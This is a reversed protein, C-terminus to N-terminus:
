FMSEGPALYREAIAQDIEVGFGPADTLPVHGTDDFLPVGERRVVQGPVHQVGLEFASRGLAVALERADDMVVRDLAQARGRAEGNPIPFERARGRAEGHATPFGRARGRIEGNATPLGGFGLAPAAPVM